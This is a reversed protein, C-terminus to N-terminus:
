RTVDSIPLQNKVAASLSRRRSSRTGHLERFVSVIRIFKRASGHDDNGKLAAMKVAADWTTGLAGGDRSLNVNEM